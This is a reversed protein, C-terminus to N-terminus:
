FEREEAKAVWGGFLFAVKDRRFGRFSWTHVRQYFGSSTEVAAARCEQPAGATRRSLREPHHNLPPRATECDATSLDHIPAGHWLVTSFFHCEVVM